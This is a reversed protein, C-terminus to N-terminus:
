TFKVAARGQGVAEGLATACYTNLSVGDAEAAEALKRHLSKPVRLNFKGSYEEDLKPEAITLGEELAIELWERKIENIERLAEEPSDVDTMCGPLEKIGVFWGGGPEPILEITYPLNLYYDLDKNM